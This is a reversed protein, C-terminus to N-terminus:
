PPDRGTDLAPLSKMQGLAVHDRDRGFGRVLPLVGRFGARDAVERHIQLAISSGTRVWVEQAPYVGCSLSASPAPFIRKPHSRWRPKLPLTYPRRMYSTIHM